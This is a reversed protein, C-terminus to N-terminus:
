TKKFSRAIQLGDAVESAPSRLSYTGRIAAVLDPRSGGIDAAPIGQLDGTATRIFIQSGSDKLIRNAEESISATGPIFRETPDATFLNSQSRRSDIELSRDGNNQINDIQVTSPRFTTVLDNRRGNRAGKSVFVTQVRVEGELKEQSGLDNLNSVVRAQNQLSGASSEESRRVQQTTTFIDNHGQKSEDSQDVYERLDVGKGVLYQVIRSATVAQAEGPFAQTLTAGTIDHDALIRELIEISISGDDLIAFDDELSDQQAAGRSLGGLSGGLGGLSGGTVAQFGRGGTTVSQVVDSIGRREDSESGTFRSGSVSVRGEDSDSGTFRSGSVSSSGGTFRGGSTRDEDRTTIGGTIRNVGLGGTHTTGGGQVEVVQLLGGGNGGQRRGSDEVVQVEQNLSNISDVGTDYEYVVGPGEVHVLQQTPGGYSTLPRPTEVVEVVPRRGRGGSTSSSQVGVATRRQDSYSQRTATSGRSSTATTIRRQTTPRTGYSVRSTSGGGFSVVSTQPQTVRSATVIPRLTILPQHVVRSATTQRNSTVVTQQSPQRVTTIVTQPINAYTITSTPREVTVSSVGSTTVSSQPRVILTAPRSVTTVAPRPRAITVAPRPRTITVAPRPRAITVAPRQLVITSPRPRTVAPRVPAITSPVNINQSILYQIVESMTVSQGDPSLAQILIDTTIGNSDLIQLLVNRDISGDDVIALSSTSTSTSSTSTSSTSSSGGIGLLTVDVGRGILYQVVESATVPAGSPSLASILVNSTIGERDLIQLLLDRNVSGDDIITFTAISTSTSTFGPVNIGQSVLYEALETTSITSGYTQIIIDINFGNNILLGQLISPLVSGDYIITLRSGSTSTITVSNTSSSTTSGGTVTSTSGGGGAVTSTSGGSPRQITAGDPLKGFAVSISATSDQGDGWSYQYDLGQHDGNSSLFGGPFGPLNYSYVPFHGRSQTGWPYALALLVWPGLWHQPFAMPKASCASNASFQYCEEPQSRILFQSPSEPSSAFRCQGEYGSAPGTTAECSRCWSM